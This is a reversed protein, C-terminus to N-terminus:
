RPPKCGCLSSNSYRRASPFWIQPFRKPRARGSWAPQRVMYLNKRAFALVTNLSPPPLPRQGWSAAAARDKKSKEREHAGQLQSTDLFLNEMDGRYLVQSLLSHLKTSHKKQQLAPQLLPHTQLSLKCIAQRMNRSIAICRLLTPTDARAQKLIHDGRLAMSYTVLSAPQLAQFKKADKHTAEIVREACPWFRMAAVQQQFERSLHQLDAGHAFQQADDHLESLLRVTLKHQHIRAPEPMELFERLCLRAARRATATDHHAFAALKWPFKGWHATKISIGLRFFQIGHHFDRMLLTFQSASLDGQFGQLVEKRADCLANLKTDVEGSAWEPARLGAMPCSALGVDPFDSRLAIERQSKGKNKLLPEHCKCGEAFGQISEAFSHLQLVLHAYAMFWSSSLSTAFAEPDFTRDAENTHHGRFMVTNWCQQLIQLLPLAHRIYQVVCGWRKEYLAPVSRTFVSAPALGAPSVCTAWARKRMQDRSLLAATNKLEMWFAGFHELNQDIDAELNDVIHCAGAVCVANPFVMLPEEAFDQHRMAQAHADEDDNEFCTRRFPHWSPLLESTKANLTAINLEAGMDTCVAATSAHLAWLSEKSTTELANSYVLAAAKAAANGHGHGLAVPVSVHVQINALIQSCLQQRESTLLQQPLQPDPQHLEDEEESDHALGLRRRKELLAAAAVEQELHVVDQCLKNAALMTQVVNTKAIRLHRSILLQWGGLDTGDCWTYRIYAAADENVSQQFLM